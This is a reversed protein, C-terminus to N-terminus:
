LEHVLVCSYCENNKSLLDSQLTFTNNIIKLHIFHELRLIINLRHTVVGFKVATNPM